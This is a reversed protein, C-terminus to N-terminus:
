NLHCTSAEGLGQFASTLAFSSLKSALVSKLVRSITVRTPSCSHPGTAFVTSPGFRNRSLFPSTSLFGTCIQYIYIVHYKILQLTYYILLTSYEPVCM